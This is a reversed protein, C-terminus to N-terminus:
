YTKLLSVGVSGIFNSIPPNLKTITINITKIRKDLQLIAACSDDAVTELLKAPRSFVTKLQEYVLVYNITEELLKVTDTSEFDIVLNVLFGNGAITEENHWGHHAHFRLDSLHISRITM